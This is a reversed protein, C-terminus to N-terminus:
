IKASKILLLFDLETTVRRIWYYVNRENKEAIM